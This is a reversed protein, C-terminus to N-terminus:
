VRERQSRSNWQAIVAALISSIMTAALLGTLSSADLWHGDNFIDMAVAWLAPTLFTLFGGLVLLALGFQHRSRRDAERMQNATELVARRTRQVVAMNAEADLGALADLLKPDPSESV